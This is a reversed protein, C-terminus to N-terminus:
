TITVIPAQTQEDPLFKNCFFVAADGYVAKNNFSAANYTITNSGATLQKTHTGESFGDINEFSQFFIEPLQTTGSAVQVNVTITEGPKVSYGTADLSVVSFIM